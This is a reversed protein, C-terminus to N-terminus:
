RSCPTAGERARPNFRAAYIAGGICAATAGERARPNFCRQLRPLLNKVLRAKVPAHISVANINKLRGFASTAGERARPNFRGTLITIQINCYTAGERARPNFCFLSPAM